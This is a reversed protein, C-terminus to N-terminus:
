PTLYISPECEPGTNKVGFPSVLVGDADNNSARSSSGSGAACTDQVRITLDAGGDQPRMTLAVWVKTSPPLAVDADLRRRIWSAQRPNRDEARALLGGPAGGVDSYIGILLTTGPDSESVYIMVCRAVGPLAVSTFGFADLARASVRMEEPRIQLTGALPEGAPSCNDPDPDAADPPEPLAADLGPPSPPLAGDSQPGADESAALPAADFSSCAVAGLTAAYAVLGAGVVGRLPRKM